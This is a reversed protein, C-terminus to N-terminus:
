ADFAGNIARPAGGGACTQAQSNNMVRRMLPYVKALDARLTTQLAGPIYQDARFAPGEANDVCYVGYDQFAQALRSGAESLNLGDISVNPPLAFLAGYPIVGTGWVTPATDCGGDHNISPWVIGKGLQPPTPNTTKSSLGIQHAHRIPMGPATLEFGRMIGALGWLGSTSMAWNQGVGPLAGHGIGDIPSVYHLAAKPGDNVWHYFDHTVGAAPDYLTVHNDITGGVTSFGPPLRLQVPFQDSGGWGGSYWSITVLPYSPDLIGTTVGWGNTSNINPNSGRKWYVTDPDSDGSYIAGSGIPRHFASNKNYPNEFAGSPLVITSEEVPLEYGNAKLYPLIEDRIHPAVGDKGDLNVWGVGYQEYELWIQQDLRSDESAGDDMFGNSETMLIPYGARFIQLGGFGDPDGFRLTGNYHHYAIATKAWDIAGLGEFYQVREKCTAATPYLQCGFLCIITNPASARMLAYIDHLDQLVDNTFVRNTLQGWYAGGGGCAENTMEYFVHPRDKYRAAIVSWFDHLQTVNYSGPEVSVLIMIYMNSAWALEVAADIYPIQASVARGAGDHDTKVGFRCMNLGYGRFRNWVAAQNAPPNTQKRLDLTAGRMIQGTDTKITGAVIRPRGRHGPALPATTPNALLSPIM